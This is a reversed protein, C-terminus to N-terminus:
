AAEAGATLSCTLDMSFTLLWLYSKSNTKSHKV